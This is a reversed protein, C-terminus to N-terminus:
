AKGGRPNSSFLAVVYPAQAPGSSFLHIRSRVPSNTLSNSRSAGHKWGTWRRGRSRGTPPTGSRGARVACFPRHHPTPFGLRESLYNSVARCEVVNVRAAPPADDGKAALWAETRRLAAASIPCRTSHKFVLVPADGHRVLFAEAAEPTTLEEM